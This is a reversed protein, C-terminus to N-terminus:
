AVEKLYIRRHGARPPATQVQRGVMEPTIEVVKAPTDAVDVLKVTYGWCTVLAHGDCKALITAKAEKERKEAERRAVGAEAYTALADALANDGSMDVPAADLPSAIQKLTELTSDSGDPDPPLGLEVSNWFEAVRREIEAIVKPRRQYVFPDFLDTGVLPAIAVRDMGTCALQHQGQLLIHMPPEDADKWDRKWVDWAVSKVELVLPEPATVIRDPTCGMGRVKPHQWYGSPRAEWGQRRCTEDAIAGEIARGWSARGSDKFTEIGSSKAHWLSFASLFPNCGFLASVESAGVTDARLQHWHQESDIKIEPM